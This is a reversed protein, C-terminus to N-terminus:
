PLFRKFAFWRSFLGKVTPTLRTRNYADAVKRIAEAQTPYPHIVQALTKLGLGGVMATTIQSIIEGAHRAVITAGVIQDTGKKIHIKVFGAEEGDAVARDVKDFPQVFTEIAIGAAEAEAPYLGVHAVEPDTYTCWPITLASAKQRGMFLANALVTRALFDAAHTFQYKSCVDGAAFIRTNTTRLREDVQVGTRPDYTVGATELGLGEVNPARGVAVLIEDVALECSQKDADTYQLVKAEGHLAVARLQANLALQVGDHLMAQQVIEAADADEKNLLHAGRHLLTV